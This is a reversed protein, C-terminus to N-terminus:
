KSSQKGGSNKKINISYHQEAVEILTELTAQKMRADKLQQELVKIQNSLFLIKQEDSSFPRKTNKGRSSMISVGSNGYQRLWRLITSHGLIGYEQEAERVSMIGSEIASVIKRRVEENYCKNM